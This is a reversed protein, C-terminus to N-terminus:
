PVVINVLNRSHTSNIGVWVFMEGDEFRVNVREEDDAFGVVRELVVLRVVGERCM